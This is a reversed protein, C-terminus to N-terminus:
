ASPTSREGFLDEYACAIMGIAVPLAVLFGVGLALIGLIGILGGVLSLGLVRWAQRMVVKRSTEMAEWFGLGRDIILAFAFVWILSLFVAVPIAILLGPLMKWVMDMGPKAGSTFIPLVAWFGFPVLCLVVVLGILVSQVVGALMLPLFGRQFGAFADGVVATQGRMLKLFLWYIGGYFVGNLLMRALSGVLPVVSIVVSVLIVLFTGGVTLGLNQRVLSWSRRLCDGIRFGPNRALARQLLAQADSAVPEGASRPTLAPPVPAAGALESINSLSRWETEPDRRVMTQGNVRGEALWQRLVEVTVPGYEKSDGGIIYFM